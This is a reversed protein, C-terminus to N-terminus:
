RSELWIRQGLPEPYTTGYESNGERVKRGKRNFAERGGVLLASSALAASTKELVGTDEADGATKM